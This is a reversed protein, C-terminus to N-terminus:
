LTYKENRYYGREYYHATLDALERCQTLISSLMAIEHRLAARTVPDGCVKVAKRLERLRSRLPQAAAWYGESLECLKMGGTGAGLPFIGTCVGDSLQHM